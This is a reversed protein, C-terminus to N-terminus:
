GKQLIDQIRGLQTKISGDFITDGIKTVVGGILSPDYAVELLITKGTTRELVTKIEEVQIDELPLASTVTSRLLGSLEDAFGRYGAIISPLQDLRNKELLLFFFNTVTKSLPLKDVADQLMAKKKEIAFAPSSLLAAFGHHAALVSGFGSLEDYYKEVAGEETALQILAKAYRRAIANTIM